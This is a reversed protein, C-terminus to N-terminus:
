KRERPTIDIRLHASGDSLQVERKARAAAVGRVVRQYEGDERLKYSAVLPDKTSASILDYVGVLGTHIDGGTLKRFPPWIPTQLDFAQGDMPGGNVVLTAKM